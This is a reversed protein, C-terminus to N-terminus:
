FNFNNDIINIKDKIFDVKKKLILDNSTKKTVIDKSFVIHSFVEAM